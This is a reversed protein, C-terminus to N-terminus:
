RSIQPKGADSLRSYILHQWASSLVKLIKGNPSSKSNMWHKLNGRESTTQITVSGMERAIGEQTSDGSQGRITQCQEEWCRNDASLSVFFMIMFSLCMLWFSGSLAFLSDIHCYPYFVCLQGFLFNLLKWFIVQPHM